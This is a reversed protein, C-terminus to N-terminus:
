TALLVWFRELRLYHVNALGGLKRRARQQRSIQLGYKEMLKRDVAAGDKGEPVRGAVYFWYGNRLINSELQQVFGELSTAVCRYEMRDGKWAACARATQFPAIGIAGLPFVKTLAWCGKRDPRRVERGFAAFELSRLGCTLFWM